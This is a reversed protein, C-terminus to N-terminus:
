SIRLIEGAQIYNPDQIKNLEVLKEISTGFKRSILTLTDGRRVRYFRPTYPWSIPENPVLKIVQGPYIKDPDEINNIKVLEPVTTAFRDAIKQLTDGRQVIYQIILM